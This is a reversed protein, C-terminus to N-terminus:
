SLRFGVEEKSYCHILIGSAYISVLISEMFRLSNIFINDQNHFEQSILLNFKVLYFHALELYAM